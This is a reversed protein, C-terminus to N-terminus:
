KTNQMLKRLACIPRMKWCHLSMVRKRARASKKVEPTQNVMAESGGSSRLMMLSFGTAWRISHIRSAAM